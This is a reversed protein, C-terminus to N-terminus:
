EGELRHAHFTLFRVCWWRASVSERQCNMWCSIFKANNTGFEHRQSIFFNGSATPVKTPSFNLILKECARVIIGLKWCWNEYKRVTLITIPAILTFSRRYKSKTWITLLFFLYVKSVYIKDRRSKRAIPRWRPPGNTSTLMAFLCPGIHWYGSCSLTATWRVPVISVFSSCM